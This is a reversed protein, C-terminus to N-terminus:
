GIALEERPYDFLVSTRPRFVALALVLPGTRGVFMCAIIILKGGVSLQPTIGTSLGVTGFASTAEFVIALFHHAPAHPSMLQEETILLAAVVLGLFVIALSALQFARQVIDPPITRRLFTVSERSRLRAYMAALMVVATTVKIGGAASGPAGGIVMLFLTFFLTSERMRGFDLTNFGATRTTVSQFLGAGLRGTVPLNAMSNRWELLCFMTAGLIWLIVSGVLVVRTHFYLPPRRGHLRGGVWLGIQRLCIFGIGGAAILIMIMVLVLPQDGFRTLSDPYLSFGANCFASVSHFVASWTSQGRGLGPSLVIVGLTEAIVTLSVVWLLLRFPKVRVAALQDQAEVHHSLSAKGAAVLLLTSMTTIGLGGLQILTLLVGQGFGSLQDGVAITSLGTVCVASTATFLSDVWSLRAGQSAGPLSLLATGIAILVAFGSALRLSSSRQRHM